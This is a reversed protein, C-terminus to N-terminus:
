APLDSIFPEASHIWLDGFLAQLWAFHWKKSSTSSEDARGGNLARAESGANSAPLRSAWDQIGLEGSPQSDRGDWCTGKLKSDVKRCARYRAGRRLNYDAALQGRCKARSSAFKMLTEVM